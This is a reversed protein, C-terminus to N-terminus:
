FFKCVIRYIAYYYHFVKYFVQHNDNMLKTMYLGNWVRRKDVLIAASDFEYEDQACTTNFLNWVAPHQRSKLADPFFLAGFKHYMPDSLFLEEPDRTVYADCDLFLVESFTSSLIAAPKYPFPKQFYSTRIRPKYVHTTNLEWVHTLTRCKAALFCCVSANLKPAIRLLDIM